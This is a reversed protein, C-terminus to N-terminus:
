SPRRVSRCFSTSSSLERFLAKSSSCSSTLVATLCLNCSLSFVALAPVLSDLFVVVFLEALTVTALTELSIRSSRSPDKTETSEQSGLSGVDSELEDDDEEDEEESSSEESPSSLLLRSLGGDLSLSSPLTASMTVRTPDSLRERLFATSSAAADATTTFLVLDNFFM